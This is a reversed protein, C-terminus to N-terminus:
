TARRAEWAEDDAVLPLDSVSRHHRHLALFLLRLDDVAEVGVRAVTVKELM